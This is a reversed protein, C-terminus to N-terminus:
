VVDVIHYDFALFPKVFRLFVGRCEAVLGQLLTKGLEFTPLMVSARHMKVAIEGWIRESETQVARVPLENHVAAQQVVARGIPGTGDREIVVVEPLCVGSVQMSFVLATSQGCKRM